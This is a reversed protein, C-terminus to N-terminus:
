RCHLGKFAFSVIATVPVTKPHPPLLLNLSQMVVFFSTYTLMGPVLVNAADEMQRGQVVPPM